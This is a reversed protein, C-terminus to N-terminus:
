VPLRQYLDNSFRFQKPFAIFIFSNFKLFKLPNLSSSIFNGEEFKATKIPIFPAPFDEMNSQIAINKDRNTEFIILFSSSAM